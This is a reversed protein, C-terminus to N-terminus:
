DNVICIFHSLILLNYNYNVQTDIGFTDNLFQDTVLGDDAGDGAHTGFTCLSRCSTCMHGRCVSLEGEVLPSTSNILTQTLANITGLTSAEVHEKVVLPITVHEGQPKVMPARVVNPDHHAGPMEFSSGGGRGQSDLIDFYKPIEGLFFECYLKKLFYM